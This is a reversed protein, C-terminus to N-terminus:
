LQQMDNTAIPTEGALAGVEAASGLRHAQDMLEGRLSLAEGAKDGSELSLAGLGELVAEAVRGQLVLPEPQRARDQLTLRSAIRLERMRNRILFAEPEGMTGRDVEQDMIAQAALGVLEAGTTGPVVELDPCQGNPRPLLRVNYGANSYSNM